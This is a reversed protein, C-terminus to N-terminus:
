GFRKIFDFLLDRNTKSTVKVIHGTFRCSRSSYSYAIAILDDEFAILTQKADVNEM